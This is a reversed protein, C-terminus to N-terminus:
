QATNLLDVIIWRPGTRQLKARSSLHQTFNGRSSMYGKIDYAFEADATSGHVAITPAGTPQASLDSASEFMAKYGGRARDNMGPFLELLVDMQKAGIARVYSELAQRIRPTEAREAEAASDVRPKAESVAPPPAREVAKSEPPPTVPTTSAQSGTQPSSLVPKTVDPVPRAPTTATPQRTVPRPAPSTELRRTAATAAHENVAVPAGRTDPQPAPATASRPPASAAASTQRTLRWSVFLGGGLLAVGLATVALRTPARSPVGVGVPVAPRPAEATPTAEGLSLSRFPLAPSLPAPPVAERSRRPPRTGVIVQVSAPASPGPTPTRAAVPGGRKRMATTPRPGEMADQAAGLAEAVARADPYREDPARALLRAVIEDLLAPVQDNLASPRPAAETLRRMMVVDLSEGGAFPTEGTLMEHLVCGLSYLDTRGDLKDGCLQEPSM